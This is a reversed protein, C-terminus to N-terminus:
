HSLPYLLVFKFVITCSFFQQAMRHLCALAQGVETEKGKCRVVRIVTVTTMMTADQSSSDTVLAARRTELARSSGRKCMLHKNDEPYNM